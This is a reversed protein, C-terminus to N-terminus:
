LLKRTIFVAIVLLLGFFATKWKIKEHQIENKELDCAQSIQTIQSKLNDIQTKIASTACEKPLSQELVTASNIANITLNESVTSTKACGCLILSLLIARIM